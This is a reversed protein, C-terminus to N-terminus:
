SCLKEALKLIPVTLYRWNKAIWESVDFLPFLAQLHKPLQLHVEVRLSEETAQLFATLSKVTDETVLLAVTLGLLQNIELSPLPTIEKLLLTLKAPKCKRIQRLCASDV